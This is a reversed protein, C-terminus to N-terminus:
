GGNLSNGLINISRQGKLRTRVEIGEIFEPLDSFAQQVRQDAAWAIREIV